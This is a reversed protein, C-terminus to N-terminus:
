FKRGGGGHSHGGSSTHSSTHGGGGSRSGGGGNNKPIHRTTVTTNVRRDYRDRIRESGPKMYVRGGPAKQSRVNIVMVGVGVAGIAMAMLLRKVIGGPSLIRSINEKRQRALREAEQAKYEEPTYEVFADKSPDYYGNQAVDSNTGYSKVGDLFERCAGYYDGDSMDYFIDDLMNEIDRDTFMEMATGATSIYYERNEMDILFLIGSGNDQEYGFRHEDYFDDAYNRTSKGRTDDTTVIIIDLSMEEALDAIEEQLKQEESGSLLDADDFVKEDLSSYGCLLVSLMLVMMTLAAFFRLNKRKM